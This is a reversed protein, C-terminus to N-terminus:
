YINLEKLYEHIKLQKCKLIFFENITPSHPQRLLYMGAESPKRNGKWHNCASCSAVCNDFNTKGKQSLPIVHDITLRHKKTGCYMCAFGDRIFVNKKSYPVRNKYVMRIVKILKIVLPKNMIVTGDGCRLKEESSKVVETKGQYCLKVARKWHVMNLFSFDGNLVVCNQM